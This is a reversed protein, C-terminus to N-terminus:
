NNLNLYYKHGILSIISFSVFAYDNMYLYMIILIINYLIRYIYLKKIFESYGDLRCIIISNEICVPICYPTYLFLMDLKHSLNSYILILLYYLYVKAHPNNKKEIYDIYIKSYFFGFSIYYLLRFFINTSYVYTLNNCYVYILYITYPSVSSIITSYILNNIVYYLTHSEDLLYLLPITINNWIRFSIIHPNLFIFYYLYYLEHLMIYINMHRYIM